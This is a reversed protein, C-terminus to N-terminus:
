RLISALEHEAVTAKALGARAKRAYTGSVPVRFELLSMAETIQAAAQTDGAFAADFSRQIRAPDPFAAGAQQAWAALRREANQLDSQAREVLAM